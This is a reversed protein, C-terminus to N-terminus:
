MRNKKGEKMLQDRKPPGCGLIHEAAFHSGGSAHRFDVKGLALFIASAVLAKRVVHGVRRSRNEVGKKGLVSEGLAGTAVLKANIDEVVFPIQPPPPCDEKRTQTM